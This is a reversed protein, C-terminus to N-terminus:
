AIGPFLALAMGTPAPKGAFSELVGRKILCHANESAVKAAIRRESLSV